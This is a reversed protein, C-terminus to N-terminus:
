NANKIYKNFLDYYLGHNSILEEHTGQEYLEGNRLVLINDAFVTTDFRHSINIITSKTGQLLMNLKNESILDMASSAEDFIYLGADKNLARAVCVKQAEGGSLFVGNEDFERSLPTNIGKKLVSYDLNLEDIIKLVNDNIQEKFTINEKFTFAFVHYNQFVVGIKKTIEEKKYEKLNIGNVLIEGGSPEYLGLLLKILTTKGAGNVGVISIKQGQNIKFSMNKIIYNQSNPFKFYLNKVEISYPKNNDLYLCGKNEIEKYTYIYKFNEIELSNKYLNSINDLLSKLVIEFQNASTMLASYNAISYIHNWVKLFLYSMMSISLTFTLILSINSIYVNKKGNKKIISLMERHSDYYYEKGMEIVDNCKIEQVISSDYLIRKIYNQKRSFSILEMSTCFSIKGLIISQIFNIIAIVLVFSIILEDMTLILASLSLVSIFNGLLQFFLNFVAHPINDLQSLAKTYKDYFEPNEFRKYDILKVKDFFVENVYNNVKAVLNPEILAKNYVLFIKYAFQFAILGIIVILIQTINVEEKLNNNELLSIIYRVLLINLVPLISNILTVIFQILFRLKSNKWVIKLIFFNNSLILKLNKLYKYIKKM